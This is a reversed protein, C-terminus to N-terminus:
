SPAVADVLAAAAGGRGMRRDASRYAEVIGAAHRAEMEAAFEILSALFSPEAAGFDAVPALSARLADLRAGHQLLKSLLICDDHAWIGIFGGPKTNGVFVERGAGDRDFGVSVVWSRGGHWVMSGTIELRRNPLRLRATDSDMM